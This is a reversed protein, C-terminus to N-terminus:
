RRERSTLSANHFLSLFPIILPAFIITWFGNGLVKIVIQSFAGDNEGLLASIMLFFVMSLMAGGAVLAILAMPRSSFNGISERNTAFLFGILTMVFAWQGFPADITPSLDLIIGGIFGIVVAGSRDEFSILGMLVAIYFSFGAIPFNIRTVLSEQILFAIIILGSSSFIRSPSM